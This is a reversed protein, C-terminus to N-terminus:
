YILNFLYFISPQKLGDLLDAFYFRYYVSELMQKAKAEAFHGSSVFYDLQTKYFETTKFEDLTM